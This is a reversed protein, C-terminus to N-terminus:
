CWCDAWNCSMSTTTKPKRRGAMMREVEGTCHENTRCVQDLLQDLEEANSLKINIMWGDKDASSNVLSNDDKVAQNVGSVTGSVPAYVSSAAKVSEVSGFADGKSLAAGVQLM